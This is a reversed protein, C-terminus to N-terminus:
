FTNRIGVNRQPPFAPTCYRLVNNLPSNSYQRVFLLTMSIFYPHCMKHVGYDWMVHVTSKQSECTMTQDVLSYRYSYMTPPGLTEHGGGGGISHTEPNRTGGVGINHTGPIQPGGPGIPEFYLPNNARGSCPALEPVLLVYVSLVSSHGGSGVWALCLWLPSPPILQRSRKLM